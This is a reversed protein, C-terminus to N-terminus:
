GMDGKPKRLPKSLKSKTSIVTDLRKRIQISVTRSWGTGVEVTFSRTDFAM